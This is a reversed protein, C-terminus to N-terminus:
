SGERFYRVIQLSCIFTKSDQDLNLTFSPISYFQDPKQMSTMWRVLSEMSGKVKLSVGVQAGGPGRQNKEILSQEMIELKNDRAGKLASELIQAKTEAEGALVPEHARIWEQRQKWLDAKQLDVEAEAKDGRMELYSRQLSSLKGSIWKYGYFNGGVFLIAALLALLVKENRTRPKVIEQSKYNRWTM